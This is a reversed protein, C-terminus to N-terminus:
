CGMRGFRDAWDGGFGFWGSVTGGTTLYKGAWDVDFGLRQQTMGPRFLRLYPGYAPNRIDYVSIYDSQRSASFLVYPNLPHFSLQHSRSVTLLLQLSHRISSARVQTIGQGQMEQGGNGTDLEMIREDGTDESYCSVRAGKFTGVAFM